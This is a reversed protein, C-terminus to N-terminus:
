FGYPNNVLRLFQKPLETEPMKPVEVQFGKNELEKKVSQYWCYEPYGEWCHIIIVRKM